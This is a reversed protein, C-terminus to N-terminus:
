GLGFTATEYAVKSSELDLPLTQSSVQGDEKVLDKSLIIQLGALSGVALIILLYRTM